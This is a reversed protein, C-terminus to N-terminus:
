RPVRDGWGYHDAVTPSLTLSFDPPPRPRQRDAVRHGFSQSSGSTGTLTVTASGAAATSAAHLAVNQATGPTLTLTAPSATVGSPLGTIAVTVTGTFGNEPNAQVSIQQQAGGAVLAATAPTSSLSFDAPPPAPNSGGGCSALAVCLWFCVASAIKAFTHRLPWHASTRVPETASSSVSRRSGSKRNQLRPNQL